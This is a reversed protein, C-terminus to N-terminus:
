FDALYLAHVSQREFYNIFLPVLIFSCISDLDPGGGSPERRLGLLEGTAEGM